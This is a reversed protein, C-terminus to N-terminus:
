PVFLARISYAAGAVGAFLLFLKLNGLAKLTEPVFIGLLLIVSSAFTSGNFCRDFIAKNPDSPQTKRLFDLLYAFTVYLILVAGIFIFVSDEDRPVIWSSTQLSLVSQEV